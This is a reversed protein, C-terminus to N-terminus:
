PWCGSVGAADTLSEVRGDSDWLSGKQSRMKVTSASTFRATSSAASTFTRGTDPRLRRPGVVVRILALAAILVLVLFFQVLLCPLVGLQPLNCSDFLRNLKLVRLGVGHFLALTAMTFFTIDSFTFGADHTPRNSKWLWDWGEFYILSRMPSIAACHIGFTEGLFWYNEIRDYANVTDKHIRLDTAGRNCCNAISAGTNRSNALLKHFSKRDVELVLKLGGM